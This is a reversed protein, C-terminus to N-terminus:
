MNLRALMEGPSSKWGPRSHNKISLFHLPFLERFAHTWLLQYTYPSDELLESTMQNRFCDLCLNCM